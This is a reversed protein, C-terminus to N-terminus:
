AASRLAVPKNPADRIMPVFSCALACVAGATAGTLPVIWDWRSHGDMLLVDALELAAGALFGLSAGALVCATRRLRFRHAIFGFSLGTVAAPIAGLTYAAVAVMLYATGMGPGVLDSWSLTWSTWSESIALLFFVAGVPPGLLGFLFTCFLAMGLRNM